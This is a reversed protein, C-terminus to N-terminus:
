LSIYYMIEIDMAIDSSVFEALEITYIVFLPYKM